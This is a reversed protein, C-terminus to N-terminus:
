EDEESWDIERGCYPCHKYKIQDILNSCLPVRVGCNGCFYYNNGCGDDTYIPKKPENKFMAYRKEMEHKFDQETVIWYVVVFLIMGVIIGVALIAFHLLGTM